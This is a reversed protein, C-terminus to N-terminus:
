KRGCTDLKRETYDLKLLLARYIATSMTTISDTQSCVAAPVIRIVTKTCSCITLLLMTLVSITLLSQRML